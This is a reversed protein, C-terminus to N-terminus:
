RQASPMEDYTLRGGLLDTLAYIMLYEPKGDVLLKPKGFVPKFEAYHPNQGSISILPLSFLILQTLCFNSILGSRCNIIKM